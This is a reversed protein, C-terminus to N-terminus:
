NKVYYEKGTLIMKHVDRKNTRSFILSYFSKNELKCNFKVWAIKYRVGNTHENFQYIVKKALKAIPDREWLAKTKVWDPAVGTIEGDVLKPKVKTGKIMISGTVYPLKIHVGQFILNMMYKFFENVIKVYTSKTVPNSSTALYVRYSDPTSVKPKSNEVM